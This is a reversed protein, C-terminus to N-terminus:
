MVLTVTVYSSLVMMENSVVCLTESFGNKEKVKLAVSGPCSLILKWSVVPPFYSPVASM